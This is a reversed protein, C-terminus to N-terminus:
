QMKGPRGYLKSVQEHRFNGGLSPSRGESIHVGRWAGRHEALRLEGTEQEVLSRTM